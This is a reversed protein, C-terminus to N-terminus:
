DSVIIRGMVLLEQAGFVLNKECEECDYNRADPECGDREAGCGICLGTYSQDLEHYTETNMRFRVKGNTRETEIDM